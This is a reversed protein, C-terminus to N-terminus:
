VAVVLTVFVIQWATKKLIEFCYTTPPITAPDIKNLLSDVDWQGFWTMHDDESSFLESFTLMEYPCM